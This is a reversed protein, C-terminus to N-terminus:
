LEARERWSFLLRTPDRMAMRYHAAAQLFDQVLAPQATYYRGNPAQNPVLQLPGAKFDGAQLQQNLMISFATATLKATALGGHHDEYVIDGRWRDSLAFIFGILEPERVTVTQVHRRLKTILQQLQVDFM